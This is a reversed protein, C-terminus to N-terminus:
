DILTALLFLVAVVGGATLVPIAWSRAGFGVAGRQRGPCAYVIWGVLAVTFVVSVAARVILWVTGEISLVDEALALLAGLGFM